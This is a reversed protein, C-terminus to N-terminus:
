VPVTLKCFLVAHNRFRLCLVDDCLDVTCTCVHGHCVSYWRFCARPAVGSRLFYCVNFPHLVNQNLIDEFFAETHTHTPPPPYSQTLLWLPVESNMKPEKEIIKYFYFLVLFISLFGPNFGETCMLCTIQLILPLLRPEPNCERGATSATSM